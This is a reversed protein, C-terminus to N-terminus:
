AKIAWENANWTVGLPGNYVVNSVKDSYAIMDQFQFLPLTAMDDWVIADIQNMLDARKTQDFEVNAKDFLDKIKPNNYNNWNQGGGPVYISTNASQAPTAQWAFLAIDYDSAPLRVSNFDAAPDDTLEIGAEKCQEIALENTSQRRPNPDRRGLRLSLRDGGKAYIGDAGMVYGSKELLAKAAPIDRKLGKSGDVYSPSSPIYMRNNLVTADANIPAVLTKVIEERDICLSIAKRVNVDALHKNAQNFDYHEFTVGQDIESTVGTIGAVQKVLDPNPQPSIVQVDGNELAAPEQTADPVQLFVISDLNGPKGYYKPNRKLILNQGPTFSDISYWAGSVSIAPDFGVFGTNWFTGLAELEPSLTSGDVKAIDAVKAGKEVIHAPLLPGFLSQWDPFVKSYTTTVTKGDASCDVKSIDEYGTTSATNFVPLTEPIDNGDADKAGPGTFDPNPKTVKGNDAYWALIFDKCDIAVGDSWVAEPKIVYKVIQPDKSTVEASVMM